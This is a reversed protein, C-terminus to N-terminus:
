SSFTPLPASFEIWYDLTAEFGVSDAPVGSDNRNTALVWAVNYTPNSGIPTRTNM